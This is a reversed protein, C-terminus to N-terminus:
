NKMWTRLISAAVPSFPILKGQEPQLIDDIVAMILDDDDLGELPNIYNRYLLADTLAKRREILDRNPHEASGLNLVRIAEKARDTVGEVRGNIKFRLEVECEDMLPTLPLEQAGHANDCQKPTACSAVINSFDLARNPAIKRPIVHENVSDTNQSTISQCCYACLYFQEKLCAERIDVRVSESLNGYSANKNLRKWATFSMPEVSKCIKRM